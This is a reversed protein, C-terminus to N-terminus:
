FFITLLSPLDKSGTNLQKSLNDLAKYILKYSARTSINMAHAIDAFSQDGYFKLYLAEKQREPLKEIGKQLSAIKTKLTQDQIMRSEVSLEIHFRLKKQDLEVFESRDNIRKLILRRASALLYNRISNCEGLNSRREWIKSFLIQLCDKVEEKDSNLKLGYNILFQYQTKFIVEYAKIEGRKLAEWLESDSPVKSSDLKM